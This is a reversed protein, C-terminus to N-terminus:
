MLLGMGRCFTRNECVLFFVVANLNYEWSEFAPILLM